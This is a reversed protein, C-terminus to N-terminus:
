LCSHQVQRSLFFDKNSIQLTSSFCLASASHNLFPLCSILIFQCFPHNYCFHRNALLTFYHSFHHELSKSLTVQFKSHFSIPVVLHCKSHHWLSELTPLTHSFEPTQFGSASPLFATSLQLDYRTQRQPFKKQYSRKCCKRYGPSISLETLYTHLFQYRDVQLIFSSFVIKLGKAPISGM